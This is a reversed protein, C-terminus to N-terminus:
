NTCTDHRCAHVAPISNRGRLVLLSLPVSGRM